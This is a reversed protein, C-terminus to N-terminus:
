ASRREKAAAAARWAAASGGGAEGQVENDRDLRSEREEGSNWLKKTVCIVAAAARAVRRQALLLLESVRVSVMQLRQQLLLLM